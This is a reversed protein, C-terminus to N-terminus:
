SPAREVERSGNNAKKERRQTAISLSGIAILLGFTPEPVATLDAASFASSQISGDFYLVFDGTVPDWSLVDEDDFDVGDVEGSGDFTLLGLGASDVAAGNLDLARDIGESSGDFIMLPSPFVRFLDEDDVDLSGVATSTNVSLLLNGGPATATLADIEIGNPIGIASGDLEISLTTGDWRAVDRSEVTEGEISATTDITFLVNAGDRFFSTLEVARPLAPLDTSLNVANAYELALDHDSIEIGSTSITVDPSFELDARANATATVFVVAVCLDILLHSAPRRTSFAKSHFM